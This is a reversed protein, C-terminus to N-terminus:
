VFGSKLKPRVGDQKEVRFRNFKFTLVRHTSLREDEPTAIGLGKLRKAKWGGPVGAGPIPALLNYKPKKKWWGGAYRNTV